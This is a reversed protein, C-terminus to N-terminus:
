YHDPDRQTQERPKPDRLYANVVQKVLWRIEGTEDKFENLFVRQGNIRGYWARDSRRLEGVIFEIEKKEGM